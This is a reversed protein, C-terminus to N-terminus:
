ELLNNFLSLGERSGPGSVVSGTSAQHQRGYQCVRCTRQHSGVSFLDCSDWFCFFMCGPTNGQQLAETQRWHPSKSKLDRRSGTTHLRLNGNERLSCLDSHQPEDTHLHWLLNNVDLNHTWGTYVNLTHTHSKVEVTFHSQLVQTHAAAETQRYYGPSRVDGSM